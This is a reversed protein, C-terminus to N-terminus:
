RVEPQKTFVTRCGQQIKSLSKM